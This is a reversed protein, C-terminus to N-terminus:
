NSLILTRKSTVSSLKSGREVMHLCLLFTVMQLGPFPGEGSFNAPVEVQSKETELVTLILNRHNWGGLWHYKTIVVWSSLYWNQCWSTPYWIGFYRFVYFCIGLFMSAIKSSPLTHAEKLGWPSYGALNRQGYPDELCSYQLPNGHGGGPSRGLGPVSDLDGANCTSEKSDSGGSFSLFHTSAPLTKLHMSSIHINFTIGFLAWFPFPLWPSFVDMKKSFVYIIM